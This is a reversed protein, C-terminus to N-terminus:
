RFKYFLKKCHLFITVYQMQYSVSFELGDKQIRYDIIVIFESSSCYFEGLSPMDSDYDGMEDDSTVEMPERDPPCASTDVKTRLAGFPDTLPVDSRNEEDDQECSVRRFEGPSPRKPPM